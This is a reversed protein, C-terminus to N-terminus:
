KADIEVKQKHNLLAKIVDIRGTRAANMLNNFGNIGKENIKFEDCAIIDLAEKIRNDVCYQSCLRCALKTCLDFGTIRQDPEQHMCSKILDVTVKEFDNKPEPLKAKGISDACDSTIQGFALFSFIAGIAYMDVPPSFKEFNEQKLNLLLEPAM